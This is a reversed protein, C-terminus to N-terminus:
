FAQGVDGETDGDLWPWRREHAPVEGPRPVWRAPPEWGSLDLHRDIYSNDSRGFFLDRPYMAAPRTTKPCLLGAAVCAEAVLESCLYQSRLGREEGPAWRVARPKGRWCTGWPTRARFPTLQGLIRLAAFRRGEVALAFATLRRSQEETLPVTRRRIWVRERVAYSALHPEVSLLRVRLTNHPGSELIAMRGDPLAVVIGSHQPAGSLAMKHGVLALLLRDTSLFIDGPQPVYPRAPQRLEYDIAFAPQYLYSAPAPPAALGLAALLALSGASM